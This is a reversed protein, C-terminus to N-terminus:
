PATPAIYRALLVHGGGFFTPDLSGNAEFRAVGFTEHHAAPNPM